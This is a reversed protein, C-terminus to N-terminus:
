QSSFMNLLGINEQTLLNGVEEFRTKVGELKELILNTAM